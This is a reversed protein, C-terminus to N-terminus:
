DESGSEEHGSSKESLMGEMNAFMECFERVLQKYHGEDHKLMEAAEPNTPCELNPDFLLKPICHQFTVALDDIPTWGTELHDLYLCNSCILGSVFDINPHFISNVFFLRPPELPYEPLLEVRIRWVGGEYPSMKPGHFVVEFIDFGDERMVKFDRMLLEAIDMEKRRRWLM